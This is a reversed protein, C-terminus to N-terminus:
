AVCSPCVGLVPPMEALFPSKKPFNRFLEFSLANLHFGNKCSESRWTPVPLFEVRQGTLSRPSVRVCLCKDGVGWCDSVGEGWVLQEGHHDLALGSRPESRLQEPPIRGVFTPRPWSHRWAKWLSGSGGVLRQGVKCVPFSVGQSHSAWPQYDM